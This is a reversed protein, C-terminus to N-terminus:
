GGRNGRPSRTLTESGWNPNDLYGQLCYDFAYFTDDAARATWFSAPLNATRVIVEAVKEPSKGLVLSGDKRERLWTELHGGTERANKMSLALTLNSELAASAPSPWLPALALERRTMAGERLVTCDAGIAARQVARWRALNDRGDPGYLSLTDLFDRYPRDRDFELEGFELTDIAEVLAVGRRAAHTADQWAAVAYDSSIINREYFDPLGEDLQALPIRLAAIAEGRADSRVGDYACEAWAVFVTRIAHLRIPLDVESGLKWPGDAIRSVGPFARMAARAAVLRKDAPDRLDALMIRPSADDPTRKAWLAFWDANPMSPEGTGGGPSTGRTGFTAAGSVPRDAGRPRTREPRVPSGYFGALGAAISLSGILFAVIAVKLLFHVGRTHVFFSTNASQYTAHAAALFILGLLLSLSGWGLYRRATTRAADSKV